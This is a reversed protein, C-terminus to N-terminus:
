QLIQAFISHERQDGVTNIEHFLGDFLGLPLNQWAELIVESQPIDYVILELISGEVEYEHVGVIHQLFVSITQHVATQFM